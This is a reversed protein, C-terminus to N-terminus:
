TAQSRLAKAELTQRSWFRRGVANSDLGRLASALGGLFLVIRHQRHGFRRPRSRRDAGSDVDWLMVTRDKLALTDRWRHWCWLSDPLWREQGQDKMCCKSFLPFSPDCTKSKWGRLALDPLGALLPTTWRGAGM